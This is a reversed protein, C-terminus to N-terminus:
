KSRFLSRIFEDNNELSQILYMLLLSFEYKKADNNQICMIRQLEKEIFQNYKKHSDHYIINSNQLVYKASRKPLFYINKSCSVDFNLDQLLKHNQFQRPIIHHNDILDHKFFMNKFLRRYKTNYHFIDNTKNYDFISYSPEIQLLYRSKRIHYIYPTKPVQLLFLCLKPLIM